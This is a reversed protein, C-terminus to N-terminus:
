SKARRPALIYKEITHPNRDPMYYSWNTVAHLADRKFHFSDLRGINDIVVWVQKPKSRKKATM